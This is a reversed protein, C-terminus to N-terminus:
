PGSLSCHLRFVIVIGYSPFWSSFSVLLRISHMWWSRSVERRTEVTTSYSKSLMYKSTNKLHGRQFVYTRGSGAFAFIVIKARPMKYRCTRNRCTARVCVCVCVCAFLDNASRSIRYDNAVRYKWALNPYLVIYFGKVIRNYGGLSYWGVVLLLWGGVAVRRMWEITDWRSGVIIFLLAVVIICIFRPHLLILIWLHRLFRLHYYHLCRPHLLVLIHLCLLITFLKGIAVWLIILILFSSKSSHISDILWGRATLSAVFLLIRVSLIRPHLLILLLVRPHPYQMRIRNPVQHCEPRLDPALVLRSALRCVDHWNNGKEDADNQFEHITLCVFNM